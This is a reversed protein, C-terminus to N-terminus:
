ILYQINETDYYYDYYLDAKKKNHFHKSNSIHLSELTILVNFIEHQAEDQQFSFSVAM